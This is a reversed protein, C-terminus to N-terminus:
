NRRREDITVKEKRSGIIRVPVGGAICFPPIRKTVVAGTGIIGGEGITADRLAVVNGDLWCDDQVIIEGGIHGQNKIPLTNDSFLHDAARFICNLGILVDKGITLPEM